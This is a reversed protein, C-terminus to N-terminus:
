DVEYVGLDIARRQAREVERTAPAGPRDVYEAFFGSADLGASESIAGILDGRTFNGRAHDRWLVRLVDDLSSRNGTESRLHVDLLLAVAHGRDYTLRRWSESQYEQYWIGPDSLAVSELEVEGFVRDGYGAFIRDVEAPGLWGARASLVHGYYSTVGEKFWPDELPFLGIPLWTHVVEHFAVRLFGVAERDRPDALDVHEPLYAQCAWAGELGGMPEERFVRLSLRPFPAGGFLRVSREVMERLAGTLRKREARGLEEPEALVVAASYEGAFVDFEVFDGVGFQLSLLEHLNRFRTRAPPGFLDVGDALLFLLEVPLEARLDHLREGTFEPTLFVLNGSLWLRGADPHPIHVHYADVMPSAVLDVLLLYEIHLRDGAGEIEWVPEGGDTESRRVALEVGGSRVRLGRVSEGAAHPVPNDVYTPVGRLRLTPSVNGTIHISVGLEGSAPDLATVEVSMAPGAGAASVFLGALLFGGAMTTWVRFSM